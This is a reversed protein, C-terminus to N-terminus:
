EKGEEPQTPKEEDGGEPYDQKFKDEWPVAIGLPDDLYDDEAGFDDGEFIEREKFSSFLARSVIAERVKANRKSIKVRLLQNILENAFEGALAELHDEDLPQKGRLRVVLAGQEDIDLLVYCRDIFVYATGYVVELTYLKRNLTIFVSGNASDLAVNEIATKRATM